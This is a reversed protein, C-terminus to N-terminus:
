WDFDEQSAVGYESTLRDGINAIDFFRLVIDCQRDISQRPFEFRIGVFDHSIPM